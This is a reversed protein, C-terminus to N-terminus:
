HKRDQFQYIDIHLYFSIEPLHDVITLNHTLEVLRVNVPLYSSEKKVFLKFVPFPNKYKTIMQLHCTLM